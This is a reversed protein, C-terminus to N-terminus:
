QNQWLDLIEINRATTRIQNLYEIRLLLQELLDDCHHGKIKILVYMQIIRYAFDMQKTGNDYQSYMCKSVPAYAIRVPICEAGSLICFLMCFLIIITIYQFDSYKYNTSQLMADSKESLYAYYPLLNTLYAFIVM